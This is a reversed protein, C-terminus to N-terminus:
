PMYQEFWDGIAPYATTQTSHRLMFHGEDEFRLYHVPVHRARLAAVIHEAENVPVRSDNAGHLVM